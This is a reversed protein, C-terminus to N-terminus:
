KRPTHVQQAERLLTKVPLPLFVHTKQELVFSFIGLKGPAPSPSLFGCQSKALSEQSCLGEWAWEPSSLVGEEPLGWASLWFPFFPPPGSPHGGGGHERLMGPFLKDWWVQPWWQYQAHFSRGLLGILQQKHEKM